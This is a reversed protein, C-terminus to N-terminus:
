VGYILGIVQRIIIALFLWNFIDNIKLNRCDVLVEMDFKDNNQKNKQLDIGQICVTQLCSGFFM